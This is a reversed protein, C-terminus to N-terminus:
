RAGGDGAADWFAAPVIDRQFAEIAAFRDGAVELWRELEVGRKLMAPAGDPREAVQLLESSLPEVHPKVALNRDVTGRLEALVADDDVGRRLAARSAEFVGRWYAAREAYRAKQAYSRAAWGADGAFTADALLVYDPAVELPPEAMERPRCPQPDCVEAVAFPMEVVRTEGPALANGHDYGMGHHGVNEHGDAYRHIRAFQLEVIPVDGLNTLELRARGRDRDLQVDLVRIAVVDAADAVPAPLREPLPRGMDAAMAGAVPLAVACLVAAVARQHTRISM